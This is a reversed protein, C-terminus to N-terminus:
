SSPRSNTDVEPLWPSEGFGSPMQLTERNPDQNENKSVTQASSPDNPAKSPGDSALLSSKRHNQMTSPVTQPGYEPIERFKVRIPTRRWGKRYRRRARPSNLPIGSAEDGLKPRQMMGTFKGVSATRREIFILFAIFTESEFITAWFLSPPHDLLWQDINEAYPNDLGKKVMERNVIRITRLRAREIHWREKYEFYRVFHYSLFYTFAMGVAFFVGLTTGSFLGRRAEGLERSLQESTKPCYHNPTDSINCVTTNEQALVLDLAKIGVYGMEEPENLEMERKELHFNYQSWSDPRFTAQPPLEGSAKAEFFKRYQATFISAKTPLYPYQLGTLHPQRNPATPWQKVPLSGAITSLLIIVICSMLLYAKM